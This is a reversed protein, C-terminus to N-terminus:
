VECDKKLNEIVRQQAELDNKLRTKVLQVKSNDVEDVEISENNELNSFSVEAKNIRENKEVLCKKTDLKAMEDTLRDSNLDISEKENQDKSGLYSHNELLKETQVKMENTAINVRECSSAEAIQDRLLKQTIKLVGSKKRMTRTNRHSKKVVRNKCPDLIHYSDPRTKSDTRDECDCRNETCEGYNANSINQDRTTNLHERSDLEFNRQANRQNHVNLRENMLVELNSIRYNMGRRHQDINRSEERENHNEKRECIESLAQRAERERKLEDYVAELHMLTVNQASALQQTAAALHSVTRTLEMREQQMETAIRGSSPWGM